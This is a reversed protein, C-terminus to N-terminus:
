WKGGVSRRDRRELRVADMPEPHRRPLDISPSCFYFVRLRKRHFPKVITHGAPNSGTRQFGQADVSKPTRLTWLAAGLVGM